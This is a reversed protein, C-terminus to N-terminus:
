QDAIHQQLKLRIVYSNLFTKLFAFHAIYLNTKSGHQRPSVEGVVTTLILNLKTCCIFESM